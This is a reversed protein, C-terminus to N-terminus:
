GGNYLQYSVGSQSGELTIEQGGDGDCYAGGGVVNFVVPLPNVSITAAGNMDKTCGTSTNMASVTYTGAGTMMGFSVPGGTGAVPLGLPMFDRYLQYEVGSTSGTLGIDVGADGACYSSASSTVTNVTPLSNIGVIAGGSMANVCGTTANTALVTYTSPTTYMGFTVSTGTGSASGVITSGDYLDYNVGGESGALGVAVGTGGACYNGTGTVAYATPLNNIGVTAFGSMNVGCGTATVVGYVSYMGAATQAAFAVPAASTSNLTAVLTAGRYLSYRVGSQGGSLGVVVGTGGDCYNGGGTVSQVTPLPNIGITTSGSMSNMCGTTSNVGVVTYLGAETFTGFNLSGGTGPLTSVVSGSRSLTYNVGTQSGSLTVSLGAGGACYNGGGGVSYANPLANITIIAFGSMDSECATTANTAHVSYTGSTTFVGFSIASGTGAVTTAVVTGTYLTYNVGTQSGNLGVSLGSGGSCYNGGGTLSYVAPNSNVVVTASGSMPTTCSVGSTTQTAMVTYVGADMMSGFSIASGTGALIAGATIGNYIQYSVGTASNSLGVAVGSGGSCYSGGGSVSQAVPVNVTGVTITGTMNNVCGTATVTAQVTYTGPTTISGFTIASNTGSASTLTGGGVMNLDYLVGTAGFSVGAAVGTGGNCYNGGGTVSYIEPLPNIGVSASGAMSTQCGAGAGLNAIAFYSGATTYTGLSIPGGTGAASGMLTAGNFVSYFVGPDSGMMIIEPASAVDGACYNGGGSVTYVTPTGTVSVDVTGVAGRECSTSTNTARVSYTGTATQLGFSIDTGTGVEASGIPTSGLYLQYTNGATSTSIGVLVGPGGTCYSGGGTMEFSAAGDAVNFSATNASSVAIACGVENELQTVTVTNSGAATLLAESISFTGSAAGMTLTATNDASTNAGSIDFTVTFTGSGLSTSNVTVVPDNGMCVDTASPSTFNSIDPNNGVNFSVMTNDTPVDDCNGSSINTVTLSTVGTSSLVGGPVTFTGTGSGMTLTATNGTSTNAGSLDYTVTYTAAGITSSTVTVVSGSGGCSNTASMAEYNSADVAQHLTVPIAPTTSSNSGCSVVARYYLTGVTTMPDALYASRNAGSIATFGSSSSTSSEWAWSIGPTTSGGVNFLNPSFSSCSASPGASVIGAEPTGSCPPAGGRVFVSYDRITGYSISTTPCPPLNPYAPSSYISVVRMRYLGTYVNTPIVIPSVGTYQTSSTFVTNSAFGGVSETTPDFSGDNNFDIFVQCHTSTQLHSSSSPNTGFTTSYSTGANVTCSLSASYDNYAVGTCMNPDSLVSGDEGPLNNIKFFMSYTSCGTGGTSVAPTCSSSAIADASYTLDVAASFSPSGSGCWMRCRFKMDQGIGVLSYTPGFAGAVDTWTTGGDNSSEWQYFLGSADSAGSLALNFTTTGSGTSPSATASGASPTGGCAVSNGTGSVALEATTANGGSVAINGTYTTAATPKFRVYLNRAAIEGGTYLVNKNTYWTVGDFSFEFGTPADINVVGVAPQLHSARLVSFLAPASTANVATSSGFNLTAPSVTIEPTPQNIIATYDRSDAYYTWIDPCPTMLPYSPAFDNAGPWQTSSVYSNTVRMRHAGAKANAPIVLNCTPRGSPCTTYGFVSNASMYLFGGVLEENNNFRGDDDFDIWVSATQYCNGSIGITAPYTAGQNFDVKTAVNNYYWSSGGTGSGYNSADSINMTEGTVIVPSGSTGAAYSSSSNYTSPTCSSSVMSFTASGTTSNASASGPCTSVCRFQTNGALGSYTYPTSTAGPIAKWTTGGDLSKQWQYSVNGATSAGSLTLTLSTSATGSSPSVGVTGASPTGSCATAGSGSVAINVSSAIGAGSITLNSSYSSAATPKFRVFLPLNEFEEGTYSHAHASSYWNNEDFSFEFASSGPTVTFSGGSTLLAGQLAVVKFGSTTGVGVNGFALTTTSPTISPNVPKLFVRGHGVFNYGQTHVVQTATSTTYSSGGGGGASYTTSGYGGSGGGYYGGGGGGSPNSTGSLSGGNGLAGNSGGLGGSGGASQSGGGVTGTSTSGAVGNEGTLGGGNGGKSSGATSTLYNGAGGGGGAVVVRNSLATGGIRIDTAGGGGGGAYSSSYATGNGGGNYGGTGGIPSSGSMRGTLGEGGVYINLTQGPTVPIVCQVRGGYGPESRYMYQPWHLNCGGAAGEMDVQLFNVGSPVTYTQVGGTYGYVASGTPMTTIRVFGNGDKIGNEGQVHKVNSCYSSNTYSSGGGGGGYSGGGGGYYGGGGGGGRGTTSANGGNGLSGSSGSSSYTGKAGGASPTGGRGAKSDTYSNSGKGNEGTLGGGDGGKESYYPSSTYYGAGGGGGAVLVRNSLATGGIRVDTAGGGGGGYGYGNGGGNYGGPYTFSSGKTVSYASGRGHGGVFINLVQGPTVTMECQVRGGFGPRSYYYNEGGRAGLADVYIKTVGAPVQYTQMGGTYHFETTEQAFAGTNWGLLVLALIFASRFTFISRNM